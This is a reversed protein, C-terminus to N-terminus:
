LEGEMMDQEHTKPTAQWATQLSRDLAGVAVTHLCIRDESLGLRRGLEGLPMDGIQCLGIPQNSATQELLQCIAGCEIMGFPLSATDYLPAIADLSLVLCVLIKSAALLDHNGSSLDAIDGLTEHSACPVLAHNEADYRYGGAEMGDVAGPQLLLYIEVPYLGGASAYLRREQGDAYHRRLPGLLTALETSSIARDCFDRWSRRDALTPLDIGPQAELAIANTNEFQRLRTKFLRRAVPDTITPHRALYDRLVDEGPWLSPGSTAKATDPMLASVLAVLDPMRVARALETLPPRKGSLVEIRSALAILELSSAGLAVLNDDLSVSPRKLIEAVMALVSQALALDTKGTTAVATGTQEADDIMALLAKRDLKGNSTLPWREVQRFLAPVMYAPLEGRLYTEIAKPSIDGGRFFAALRPTKRDGVALVQAEEIEPHNQLARAIEGPEVRYGNIKLQADARGKFIITGDADYAGLDGTRYLALGTRLHAIFHAATKEADGFYGFALGDGAIYLEGTHGRTAIAMDETLVFVQQRGLATGYPISTWAPDVTEIPHYISWIAAETAGGLSFLKAKPWIKKARDPLDLGIWDGSMMVTALPPTAREGGIEHFDVFLSFLGPVTNWLTVGHQLCLAQWHAPNNQGAADPLVITGGAGLVGFIDYVSLDFHLQSLGLVRDDGSIEFRQSVDAITNVAAAHSVMVGKPNGTSGSTYIVYALDDPAAGQAAHLRDISGLPVLNIDIVQATLMDGLEAPLPGEGIIADPELDTLIRAQRALPQTTDIPVYAAGVISVALTAAIQQPSKPLRIAIKAGPGIGNDTFRGVLGAVQQALAAHSITRDQTAIAPKELVAPLNKLWLDTLRENRAGEAVIASTIMEESPDSVAAVTEDLMDPQDAFREVLSVFTEFLSRAVRIDLANVAIDWNIALTGGWEMVQNDLIVQPTQSLALVPKGPQASADTFLKTDNQTLTSTFVVPMLPRDLHGRATAMLRQVETGGVASHEMDKWLTAQLRSIRLRRTEPARLDTELLLNTTFDGIVRDVDPHIPPRNFLTLNLCFHPTAAWASLTEAFLSLLVASPTVGLRAAMAKLADWQPKALTHSLRDYVPLGAEEIPTLLPLAPADPMDAARERWYRRAKAADDSAREAMVCDRFTLGPEAIHLAPNRYFRAVEDLLILISQQDAVLLDFRLHIFVRGGPMLSLEIDIMPWKDSSPLDRALRNRIRTLRDERDDTETLDHIIIAPEPIDREVQQSEADLIKVRLMDHRQMVKRWADRYREINLVECDLEYYFQCAAGGLPLNPNRGILYGRQIETLSFPDHRAADDSAEFVPDDDLGALRSLLDPDFAPLANLSTSTSM